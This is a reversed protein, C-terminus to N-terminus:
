KRKDKNITPPALGLSIERFSKTKVAISAIQPQQTTQKISIQEESTGQVEIILDNKRSPQLFEITQLITQYQTPFPGMRFTQKMNYLYLIRPLANQLEEFMKIMDDPSARNPLRKMIISLATELPFIRSKFGFCISRRISSALESYFLEIHRKSLKIIDQKQRIIFEHIHLKLNRTNKTRRQNCKLHRNVIKFLRSTTKILEGQYNLLLRESLRFDKCPPAPFGLHTKNKMTFYHTREMKDNSFFTAEQIAGTLQDKLLTDEDPREENDDKNRMERIYTPETNYYDEEKRKVDQKRTTHIQRKLNQLDDLKPPSLRSKKKITVIRM